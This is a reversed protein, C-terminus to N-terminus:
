YPLNLANCLGATIAAVIEAGLMAQSLFRDEAAASGYLTCTRHAVQTVEGYEPSLIQSATQNVFLL